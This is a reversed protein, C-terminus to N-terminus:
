FCQCIKFNKKVLVVPGIEVFNPVFYGQTFTIRTQEIFPWNKELPFFNRFLSFVNVFNLFDKKELVVPGIEVLGSM